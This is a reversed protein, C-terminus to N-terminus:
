GATWGWPTPHGGSELLGGAGMAAITEPTVSLGASLRELVLDFGNRKPSRACGPLGIIPTADAAQALLLLNGPDVPMGLRLTQGGAAAIAMPVIDRRDATASAGAILLLDTGTARSSAAALRAIAAALPAIGHDVPPLLHLAVGLRAFREATVAATKALMAASTGPLRTQVLAPRRAASWPLVRIPASIAPISGAPINFPIIKITAVLDGAAVPSYPGLTAIGIGESAGNAAAIAAPDLLLLGDHAAHLNVRGHVPPRAITGPGALSAALRLAAEAEPLEGSEARAIWLTALGHAAAEALLQPTVPSGKPHRKGLMLAHALIAGECDALPREGFIM